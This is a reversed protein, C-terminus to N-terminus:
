EEKSKPQPSIQKLFEKGNGDKLRFSQNCVFCVAVSDPHKIWYYGDIPEGFLDYHKDDSHRAVMVKARLKKFLRAKM